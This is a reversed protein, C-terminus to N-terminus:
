EIQRTLSSNDVLLGTIIGSLISFGLLYATLIVTYSIGFYHVLLPLLPLKVARSYLFAAALSPQMGQKRLDGILIYWTYVPGSALVGGLLSLAWGKIGSAKGLYNKIRQPTLVLNFIIMLVLVAILIPIIQLLVNSFLMFSERALPLNFLAVVVYIALVIALFIWKGSFKSTKDAQTTM